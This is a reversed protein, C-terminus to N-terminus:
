SMLVTSPLPASGAPIYLGVNEIPRIIQGLKGGLNEIVWSAAPQHRHFKEIRQAATILAEQVEPSLREWANRIELVPVRLQALSIGDIKETWLRLAVDGREAVDALIRKVAEDASIREGFLHSIKDLIAQPPNSQNLAVRKLITKEAQQREYIQIM